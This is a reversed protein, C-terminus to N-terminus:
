SLLWLLQNIELRDIAPLELTALWKAATKTQLGKTPCAHQLNHKKLISAIRNLVRTRQEGLSKRASYMDFRIHQLLHDHRTALPHFLRSLWTSLFRPLQLQAQLM